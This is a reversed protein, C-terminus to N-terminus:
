LSLEFSRQIEEAIGLEIDLKNEQEEVENWCGRVNEAEEERFDAPNDFAFDFDISCINMNVSDGQFKELTSTRELESGWILIKRDELISLDMISLRESVVNSLIEWFCGQGAM